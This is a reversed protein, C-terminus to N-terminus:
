PMTEREQDGHSMVEFAIENVSRDPDGVLVALLRQVDAAIAAATSEDFLERAYSLELAEDSASRDRQLWLEVGTKWTVPGYRLPLDPGPDRGKSELEMELRHTLRGFTPEDSVDVSVAGTGDGSVGITITDSGSYWALLVAWAAAVASDGVGYLSESDARVSVSARSYDGSERRPHDSPVRTDAHRDVRVHPSDTLEQLIALYEDTMDAATSETFLETAFELAAAMDVEGSRETTVLTLDFKATGLPMGGFALASPGSQDFLEESVGSASQLAPLEQHVHCVDFLPSRSVDRDGSLATVVRDFPIEQHELAGLVVAQVRRLLDSTQPSGSLDVRLAVTSNFYGILGELEPRGRGTTPTGIVVDHQGSRRAMLVFVGTLLIVFFSVSERAAATRLDDVLGAPVTFTHVAGVFSKRPPRPYDTPLQLLPADALVDKWYGLEHDLAASELLDRQWIAYDRYRVTLSPFDAPVGFRRAQYLAPLEREFIRPSGGDNVSHHTTVHLVHSTPGIRILLARVLPDNELDFPTTASRRVLERAAAVPDDEHSVDVTHFFDGLKERIRLTPAGNVPVFNTRLTEHRAALDEWMGRVASEDIDGHLESVMPLNYLATGPDLQHHFWMRIQGYSLVAVDDRREIPPLGTDGASGQHLLAAFDSVRPNAYLDVLKPRTGYVLAVRDVLHMALISNGGLEFYDDDPAIDVESHLLDRLTERLWNVADPPAEPMPVTDPEGSERAGGGPMPEETPAPASWAARDPLDYWCRTGILPHGPLRTRRARTDGACVAEWDLDVGHEYLEALVFLITEDANPAFTIHTDPNEALEEELALGLRGAPSFDVFEVPGADTLRRAVDVVRSRDFQRDDAVPTDPGDSASNNSNEGRLLRATHRCFGGSLVTDVHVGYRRLEEYGVIQGAIVDAVPEPARLGHPTPRGSLGVPMPDPSLLVVIRPTAGTGSDPRSVPRDVENVLDQVSRAVIAQRYHHHPRGIDLTYAVDGLEYGGNRLAEALAHRSRVLADTSRASIGILRATDSVVPRTGTEPAQVVVCHANIGGLSFSSVGAVRRSGSPTEWTGFGTTVEIGAAALDMGGNPRRFHLSPYREGYEVGLITKVLGTVGAAHDLHGVNTKVSGIAVPGSRGTALRAVTDAIGELEVADGLPTGSGHAELFGADAFDRGARRWAKEIVSTQARASPSSLTASAHGSHVTASGGIVAHVPARDARARAMTTLMLVAGGEGVATGDADADFARCRGSASMLETYGEAMRNRIGATRLSIGGALAYDADGDRLERCAQHVAILSANCGSDVAYCPGRLGSVYAIRAPVAMPVNGLTGLVGPEAWAAPYTSAAASLVVATASDQLSATSYGADEIARHAAVLALRQQPDILSAERKSLRFYAYDFTHIDDIFGTEQYSEPADLGTAVAREPSMPRVSDRGATLNERFQALTAAEPFCVGIGVVAIEGPDVDDSELKGPDSNM